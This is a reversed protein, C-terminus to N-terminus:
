LKVVMRIAGGERERFAKFADVIEDLEWVRSVLKRVNVMGSSIMNILAPYANPSSRIGFVDIEDLAIHDTNLEIPKNGTMGALAIRGGRGVSNFAAIVSAPSGACEFVCDV